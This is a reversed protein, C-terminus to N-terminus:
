PEPVAVHRGNGEEPEAPGSPERRRAGIADGHGPGPDSAADGRSSPTNETDADGAGEPAPVRHAAAPPSTEPQPVGLWERAAVRGAEALEELRDWDFWAARGVQPRVVHLCRRLQHERLLRATMSQTRMMTDLVLDGTSLSPLEMSVDVAVVPRGLTAAAAVPIEAVVGGDVLVRNGIMVSPLLGPIASSARLVTRLDGADLRVEDGTVLDTAVAVMPLHLEELRGDPVLFRIAESLERDDLMTARNVAFSVVIRNRIRRAVQILPHEKRQADAVSRVNRVTLSIGQRRAEAWRERVAAASGLALYMAGIVAGMSTGAIGRVPLRLEDLVELVGIHAFGRAGGGGLALVPPRIRWLLRRLASVEM